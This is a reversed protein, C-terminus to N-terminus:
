FVLSGSLLAVGMGGESLNLLFCKDSLSSAVLVLVCTTVMVCTGGSNTTTTARSTVLRQLSELQMLLSRPCFLMNINSADANIRPCFASLQM